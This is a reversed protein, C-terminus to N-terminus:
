LPIVNYEYFIVDEIKGSSLISNVRILMEQKVIAENRPEVEAATKQTFYSRM